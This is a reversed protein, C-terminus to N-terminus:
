GIKKARVGHRDSHHQRDSFHFSFYSRFKGLAIGPPRKSQDSENRAFLFAVCGFLVVFVFVFCLWFWSGVGFVWFCGFGFLGVFWVIKARVGHQDPRYQRDNCCVFWLLLWLFWAVFVRLLGFM